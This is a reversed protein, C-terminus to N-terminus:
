FNYSVRMTTLRPIPTGGFVQYHFQNFVNYINLGLEMNPLIHYGASLNLLTYSPIQGVNIGALWDYGEVHNVQLSVDFEEPVDYTISANVRHPSANPLLEPDDEDLNIIADYYTYNLTLKLEDTFYYNAGLELGYQEVSGINGNSLAHLPTGDLQVLPANNAYNELAEYVMDTALQNYQAFDGSLSAGWKELDENANPVFVTVFDRIQNYYVDATIYLKESIIGKYGFEYGLNKELELEENGLARSIPQPLNNAFQPNRPDNTILNLSEGSADQGSLTSISDLIDAQLENYNFLGNTSYKEGTAFAPAIPSWRFYENYTPRQFSRSVSLRLTHNEDADYVLAARPSFFSDHINSQDMRASAVFKFDDTMEWSMQGYLGYFDADVDRSLTRNQALLQKDYSAGFILHIDEDEDAYFNYQADILMDHEDNQTFFDAHLFWISDRSYRNTYHTHLNFNESNYELRAYPKYLDKVLVRGLNFSYTDNGSNSMGVEAVVRKDVDFDYDMRFTGYTAFTEREDPTLARRELQLGDYELQSEEVRSRSLNLSQSRGLTLKYSLNDNILGAHRLDLRGTQYDGGTLTVKTGLVDRPSFSKMNIVGNFANAGYLAANPGRVFEITEFEDAPLQFSNWEQASLLMLHNERGDQLVLVRKNMTNAFGRTNVTYDTTGSRLVEVGTMGEFAAGLQNMRAKEQIQEAYMVDISGPSETVKELKKSSATVELDDFKYTQYDLEVLVDAGNDADVTRTYKQFGNEKIFITKEGSYEEYFSFIGYEDTVAIDGTEVIKVVVKKMAKGTNANVVKGTINAFLSSITIFYVIATLLILKKM